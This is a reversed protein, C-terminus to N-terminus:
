AKNWMPSPVSISWTHLAVFIVPFNEGVLVKIHVIYVYLWKYDRSILIRLSSSYIVLIETFPFLLVRDSLIASTGWVPYSAVPNALPIYSGPVALQGYTRVSNPRSKFLVKRLIIRHKDFQKLLTRMRVCRSQWDLLIPVPTTLPSHSTWTLLLGCSQTCWWMKVLIHLLWGAAPYWM